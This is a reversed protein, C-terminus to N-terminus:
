CVRQREAKATGARWGREKCSSRQLCTTKFRTWCRSRWSISRNPRDFSGCITYLQHYGLLLMPMRSHQNEPGWLKTASSPLFSLVVQHRRHIHYICTGIPCTTYLKWLNRDPHQEGQFRVHEIHMRIIAAEQGVNSRMRTQTDTHRSGASGKWCRPKSHRNEYHPPSIVTGFHTCETGQQHCYAKWLCYRWYMGSYGQQCRLIEM